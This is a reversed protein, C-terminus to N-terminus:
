LDIARGDLEGRTGKRPRITTRVEDGDAVSKFLAMVNSQQEETVRTLQVGKVLEENCLKAMELAKKRM